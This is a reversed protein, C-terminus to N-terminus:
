QTPPTGFTDIYSLGYIYLYNYITNRLTIYWNVKMMILTWSDLTCETCLLAFIELTSQNNWSLDIGWGCCFNLFYWVETPHRSYCLTTNEIEEMTPTQIMKPVVWKPFWLLINYYSNAYKWHPSDVTTMLIAVLPPMLPWYKRFIEPVGLLDM